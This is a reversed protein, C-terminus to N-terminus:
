GNPKGEKRYVRILCNCLGLYYKSKRKAIIIHTLLTFISVQILDKSTKLEEKISQWEEAKIIKNSHHRTNVESIKRAAKKLIALMMMMM